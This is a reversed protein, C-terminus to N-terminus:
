IPPSLMTYVTHWAWNNSSRDSKTQEFRKKKWFHQFCGIWFDFALLRFAVSLFILYQTLIKALKNSRILRLFWAKSLEKAWRQVSVLPFYLHINSLANIHPKHSMLFSIFYRFSCTRLGGHRVAPSVDPPRLEWSDETDDSIYFFTPMPGVTTLLARFNRGRTPTYWKRPYLM